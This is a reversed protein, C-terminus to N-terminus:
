FWFSIFTKKGEFSAHIFAPLFKFAIAFCMCAVVRRLLIYVQHLLVNWSNSEESVDYRSDYSCDSSTELSEYDDDGSSPPKAPLFLEQRVDEFVPLDTCSALECLQFSKKQPDM